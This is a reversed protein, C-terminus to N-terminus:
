GPEEEGTDSVTSLGEEPECRTPVTVRDLMV